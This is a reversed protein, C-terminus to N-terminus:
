TVMYGIDSSEKICALVKAEDVEIKKCNPQKDKMYDDVAEKTFGRTIYLEFYKEFYSTM